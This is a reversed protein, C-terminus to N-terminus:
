PGATSCEPSRWCGPPGTSSPRHPPPVTSQLSAAAPRPWAGTNPWDLRLDHPCRVESGCIGCHSTAFFLNSTTTRRKAPPPSRASKACSWWSNDAVGQGFPQSDSRSAARFSQFPHQCVKAALMGKAPSHFTHPLVIPKLNPGACHSPGGQDMGLPRPNQQFRFIPLGNANKRRHSRGMHNGLGVPRHDARNLGSLPLAFTRSLPPFHSQDCGLGLVTGGGDISRSEAAHCFGSPAPSVAGALGTPAQLALDVGHPVAGIPDPALAPFHKPFLSVKQAVKIMDALIQARRRCRAPTVLGAGPAPCLLLSQPPACHLLHELRQFGVQFGVPCDILFGRHAIAVAVQVIPQIAQVIRAGEFQAQGNSRPHNLAAVAMDKM